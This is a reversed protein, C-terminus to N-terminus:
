GEAVLDLATTPTLWRQRARMVEDCVKPPVDGM